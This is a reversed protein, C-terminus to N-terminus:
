CEVVLEQLVKRQKAQPEVAPYGVPFIAVPRIGEELSLAERCREPDFACIWCSGLGQETAALALHEATIAADVDSHSRGDAGRVWAEAECVCVVIMLPAEQLWPFRAAAECLAKRREPTRVVWYRWPQRNCASPALRACELLYDIKEQEVPRDAYRRVSGRSQVLELFNM